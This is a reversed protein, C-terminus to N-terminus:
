EQVVQEVLKTLIVQEVEVVVRTPVVQQVTEQQEQNEV